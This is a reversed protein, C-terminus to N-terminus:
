SRIPKVFLVAPLKELEDLKRVDLTGILLRPTGHEATQVFGLDRLAKLTADSLDRLFIMVDVRYDVVKIGDVNLNGNHGLRDVKDTLDRLSADLKPTTSPAHDAEEALAPPLPPPTPPSQAVYGLKSLAGSVAPAAMSKRALRSMERRGNGFVGEYSVGDPMEVPVDVRTPEGGVTVITEEVAVFSTFQTMLRFDIGLKTIERKLEEPFRGAQLAALDRNMLEAVKARAWLSALADHDEASRGLDVRIRKEYPGAATWGRLTINGSATGALRGHVMIPKAAFLDPVRRPHVESVPLEGWDIEIDTLVPALLREHFREVAADGQSELTVYEVEGRGAHAMGDLLYRNMSNGIGFSFVRTTAANKRVADIIAMDNGVYGDTMFCVIRMRRVDEEGSPTLAAHIARMMETGGAGRRTALFSRAEARNQPTNPRPEGWLLRTNGAFTILNFTDDDQMSDIMRAMVEKAKEIPFGNMSGSTDLVFILERAVQRGPRVRRPPQLILTFFEGREDRHTLLSNGISDTALRYRLVFDRNPITKKDALSVRTGTRGFLEVEVEHLESEVDFIETGAEINVTIGVDHGARTGPPTVPPTIRDGDPVQGTPRGKTMPAPSSGGGPVYRPGVVMPFVWEFFGDEYRLTEVFGIEIVVEAGPEINAVSQTFINPREQDLLGAVHGAARAAEYIRRAEEREKIKGIVRRDGVIMLMEDVAADQPLPFVYVAEIKSESTNVFRQRVTTRAVFGTVDATVDTRELPCLGGPEGEPTLILLEGPASELNTSSAAAGAPLMLALLLGALIPLIRQKM